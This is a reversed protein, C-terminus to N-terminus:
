QVRRRISTPIVLITVSQSAPPNVQDSGPLRLALSESHSRPESRLGSNLNFRMIMVVEFGGGELEWTHVCLKFIFTAIM